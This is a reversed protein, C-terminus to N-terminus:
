RRTNHKIRRLTRGIDLILLVFALSFTLAISVFLFLGMATVILFPRGEIQLHQIGYLYMNLIILEAVIGICFAVWSFVEIFGFFWPDSPDSHYQRGTEVLRGKWIPTAMEVQASVPPQPPSTEPPPLDPVTM